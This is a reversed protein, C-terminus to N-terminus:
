AALRVRHANLYDIGAALIATDDKAHGLMSNCNGCCIGRVSARDRSDFRHDHDVMWGRVGPEDKKCIACRHGQSEMIGNYEAESLRYTVWAKKTAWGLKARYRSRMDLYKEPEGKRWGEANAQSNAKFCAPCYKPVPGKASSQIFGAGCQSCTLPATGPHKPNRIRM